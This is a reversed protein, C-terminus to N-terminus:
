LAAQSLKSFVTLLVTNYAGHFFIACWLGFRMRVYGLIVGVVFQPLIILPLLLGMEGGEYNALHMLGFGLSSGWFAFPFIRQLAQDLVGEEQRAKLYRSMYLSASGIVAIAGAYRIGSTVDDTGMLILLALGVLLLPAVLFVGWRKGLWSRFLLEEILPAIIAALIIFNPRSAMDAFEESPEPLTVGTAAFLAGMFIGLIPLMLFTFGLLKLLALVTDPTFADRRAIPHPKRLYRTMDKLVAM